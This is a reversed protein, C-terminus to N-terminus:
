VAVTPETPSPAAQKKAARMKHIALTKELSPQYRPKASGTDEVLPLFTVQPRAAVMKILIQKLLWQPMNRFLSRSLVSLMTKGGMNKFLKSTAVAEKAVPLREAQYEAFIAEIDALEPKHLTSIWNALAVGDHMATLAGAGGSPNLKHCADGLLVTRGGHWKSFVKEELMVKCILHKPTKDILDGMTLNSDKGGPIKFDRIENCMIDAAEPGWESSRFADNKKSTESTLRQIVVWCITNRITTAQVWDYDAGLVSNFKSHSLKMDPFEEPDLVETQGVLCVCDFPLDGEDSAPLLKKAKLVKFLQQRVASHAGDAGVLIDGHHTKNDNCRLMVGLDNQEFSLVKKGLHINEQPIQRLLLDYLDPRAFIYEEAGCYKPRKTFDVQFLPKREEDFVDLRTNLKGIKKFEELIGVGIGAGVILVKPKDMNAWEEETLPARPPATSTYVETNIPAMPPEVVAQIEAELISSM